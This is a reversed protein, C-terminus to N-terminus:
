KKCQETFMKGMEVVSFSVSNKLDRSAYKRATNMTQSVISHATFGRCFLMALCTALNHMLHTHVLLYQICFYPNCRILLFLILVLWKSKCHWLKVM